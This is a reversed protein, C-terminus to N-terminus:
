ITISVSSLPNTGLESYVDNVDKICSTIIKLKKLKKPKNYLQSSHRLSEHRIGSDNESCMKALFNDVQSKTDLLDKILSRQSSKPTEYYIFQVKASTSYKLVEEYRRSTVAKACLRKEAEEVEKEVDYCKGKGCIITATLGLIRPLVNLDLQGNNDQISERYRTM